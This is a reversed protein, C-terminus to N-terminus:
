ARARARPEAFLSFVPSFGLFGSLCREPNETLQDRIARREERPDKGQVIEGLDKMERRRATDVSLEPFAGLKYRIPRGNAKRYVHFSRSTKTVHVCLGNVADDYVVLARQDPPCVLGQILTKTLSTRRTLARTEAGALRMPAATTAM